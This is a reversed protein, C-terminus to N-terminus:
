EASQFQHFPRKKKRRRIPTRLDGVTKRYGRMSLTMDKVHHRQSRVLHDLGKFFIEFLVLPKDLLISRSDCVNTCIFVLWVWVRIQDVLKSMEVYIKVWKVTKLTALTM